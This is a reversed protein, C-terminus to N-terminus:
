KYRTNVGGIPPHGMRLNKALTPDKDTRSKAKKKSRKSGGAGNM